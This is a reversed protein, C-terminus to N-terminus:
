FFGLMDTVVSVPSLQSPRHAPTDLLAFYGHLYPRVWWWTLPFSHDGYITMVTSDRVIVTPDLVIVTPDLVIVTPDLVIVTPDLVIATPDLVIVTRDLVIVTRDLVAPRGAVQSTAGKLGIAFPSVRRRQRKQQSCLQCFNASWVTQYM